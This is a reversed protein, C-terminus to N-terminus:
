DATGMTTAHEIANASFPMHPPSALLGRLESIGNELLEFAHEQWDYPGQVRLGLEIKAIAGAITTAPTLSIEEAMEDMRRGAEKVKAGLARMARAQPMDSGCAAAAGINLRRAEDFVLGELKQWQEHMADRWDETAVWETAKAVLGDPETSTPLSVAPASEAFLPAAAAGGILARRSPGCPRLLEDGTKPRSAM